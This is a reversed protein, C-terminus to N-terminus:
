VDCMKRYIWMTQVEWGGFIQYSVEIWAQIASDLKGGNQIAEFYINKHSWFLEQSWGIGFM